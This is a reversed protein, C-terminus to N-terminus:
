NAIGAVRLVSLDPVSDTTADVRAVRPTRIETSVNVRSRQPLVQWTLQADVGLPGAMPQEETNTPEGPAPGIPSQFDEEEETSTGSDTSRAGPGFDDDRPQVRQAETPEGSESDSSTSSSSGDPYYNTTCNACNGSVCASCTGCGGCPSYCTSCCSSGAYYTSVGCSSCGGVGCSSCPSCCTASAYGAYFGRRYAVPRGWGVAGGWACPRHCGGCFPWFCAEAQAATGLLVAAVMALVCIRSNM